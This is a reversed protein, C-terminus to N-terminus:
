HRFHAVHPQSQVFNLLRAVFLRGLDLLDLPADDVVDFQEAQIQDRFDILRAFREDVFRVFNTLLRAPLAALLVFDRSLEFTRNTENTPIRTKFLIQVVDIMRQIEDVLRQRIARFESQEARIAHHAFPQVMQQMLVALPRLRDRRKLQDERRVIRFRRARGDRIEANQQLVALLFENLRLVVSLRRNQEVRAVIVTGNATAAAFQNTTVSTRANIVDVTVHGRQVFDRHVVFPFAAQARLDVLRGAAAQLSLM